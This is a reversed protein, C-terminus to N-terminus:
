SALASVKAMLQMRAADLKDPATKPSLQERAKRGLFYAIREANAGSPHPLGELVRSRELLGESCLFSLGEVVKDGLPVFVANRLQRCQTGFHDLLHKRLLPHGIASPSGNYNAGDLFVPFTLMSATQMLEYRKGFLEACGSIGLWRHIGIQDLLAVLNPRMSGSFAAAKKVERRVEEDAVGENLLRRAESLANLMQTKGPTIGVVVVRAQENMFDFPAYYVSVAGSRDILLGDDVDAFSTSRIISKFRAFLSDNM